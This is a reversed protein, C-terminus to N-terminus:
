HLRSVAEEHRHSLLRWPHIRDAAAAMAGSLSQFGIDYTGGDGGFTIFKFNDKDSLKGKKRLVKYATEVGSLTADEEYFHSTYEIKLSDLVRMVNTKGSPKM